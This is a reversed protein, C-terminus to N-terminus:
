FFAQWSTLTIILTDTSKVSLNRVVLTSFSIWSEGLWSVVTVQLDGFLSERTDREGWTLIM